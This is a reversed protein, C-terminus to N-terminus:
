RDKRVATAAAERRKVHTQGHPYGSRGKCCEGKKAGCYTCGVLIVCIHTKIWLGHLGSGVFVSRDELCTYARTPRTGM